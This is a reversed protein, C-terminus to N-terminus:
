VTGGAVRDLLSEPGSRQTPDTPPGQADTPAPAQTPATQGPTAQANQPTPLTALMELDEVAKQGTKLLDSQPSDTKFMDKEEVGLPRNTAILIKKWDVEAGVGEPDQQAVFATNQLAKQTMEGDQFKQDGLMTKGNVRVDFELIREIRGSPLLYKEDMPVYSKSGEMTPDEILTNKVSRSDYTRKKNEGTFDERFKRGEVPFWYQTKTKYVKQTSGDPNTVDEENYDEGTMEDNAIREQVEKAEDETIEEWDHVTLESLSNALLLTWARKLPGQEWAKIRAKSRMNMQRVILGSQFATKLNDGTIQDPNIGSLQQLLIKLWDWLVQNTGIDATGLPQPTVKGDMMMGSYMTRPDVQLYSPNDPDLPEYSIPVTNLNRVNDITMNVLAQMIQEPGEILQPIGMGYLSHTEFDADLQDEFISFSLPCMGPVNAGGVLTRGQDIFKYRSLPKDYIPYGLEKADPESSHTNKAEPRGGYPCAYIRYSDELEDYIHWLRVHSGVPLQDTDYKKTGDPLIANGYRVAFQNWTVIEKKAGLNVDDPDVVHHSRMARFPSVQRLGVKARRFDRVFKEVISKDQRVYRRKRMPLESYAEIVGGGFIHNDWVFFRQHAQWNCKNLQYKVLSKWLVSKKHDSPGMPDFDGEPEGETMSAVSHGTLVRGWGLYWNSNMDDIGTQMLNHMAGNIRWRERYPAQYEDMAGLLESDQERREQQEETLEVKVEKLDELATFYLPFSKTSPM